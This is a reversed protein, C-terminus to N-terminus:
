SKTIRQSFQEPDQCEDRRVNLRVHLVAGGAPDDFEIRGSRYAHSTLIVVRAASKRRRLPLLRVKM